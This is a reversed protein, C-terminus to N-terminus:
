SPSCLQYPEAGASTTQEEGQHVFFVESYAVGWFLANDTANEDYKSDIVLWPLFFQEARLGSAM